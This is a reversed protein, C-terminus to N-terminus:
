IYRISREYPQVTRPQTAANTQDVMANVTWGNAPSSARMRRPIHHVPTYDLGRHQQDKGPWGKGLLVLPHPSQRLADMAVPTNCRFLMDLWKRAKVVLSALLILAVDM